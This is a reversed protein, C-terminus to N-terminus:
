FLNCKISLEFLIKLSRVLVISPPKNNVDQVTIVLQAFVQHIPENKETQLTDSAQLQVVVERAIDWDFVDDRNTNILFSYRKDAESDLETVNLDQRINSLIELVVSDGIDRDTVHVRLLEYGEGVTEKCSIRYTDQEFQPLEDNWNRLEINLVQENTYLEDKASM